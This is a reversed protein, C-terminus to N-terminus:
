KQSQKKLKCYPYKCGCDTILIHDFSSKFPKKDKKIFYKCNVNNCQMKVRWKRIIIWANNDDDLCSQNLYFSFIIINEVLREGRDHCPHFCM